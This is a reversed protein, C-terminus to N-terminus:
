PDKVSLWWGDGVCWASDDPFSNRHLSRIVNPNSRKFAMELVKAAVEDRAGICPIFEVRSISRASYRKEAERSVLLMCGWGEDPTLPFLLRGGIGLSDLWEPVPHTAGANVYIVDVNQPLSGESLRESRVRVNAVGHLNVTAREALDKEIEYADIRGSPGVLEALIATYYGTGAGIHVVAEGPKLRLANICQAHLAPQGNNIGRDAALAIVIDQYVIRPDDVRTSVYEGDAIPVSWPGPSLFRERQVHSFASILAYADDSAGAKAVMLRAFFARFQEVSSM